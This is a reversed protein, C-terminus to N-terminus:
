LSDRENKRGSKKNSKYPRETKLMKNGEIMYVGDDAVRLRTSDLAWNGNNNMLYSNVIYQGRGYTTDGTTTNIYFDVPEGTEMNYSTRKARDYRLKIDKGTKLDRYQYQQRSQQQTNNRRATTDQAAATLSFATGCLLLLFQSLIIRNKKMAISKTATCLEQVAM